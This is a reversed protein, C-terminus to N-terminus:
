VPLPAFTRLRELEQVDADTLYKKKQQIAILKDLRAGDQKRGQVISGLLDNIRDDLYAKDPYRTQLVGVKTKLETMDSKLGAVDSKLGAVDSKLGAVDSKLGAVDSKLGAVDTKIEAVTNMVTDMLPMVTEDITEHMIKKIQKLDQDNM